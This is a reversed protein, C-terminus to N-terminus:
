DPPVLDRSNCAASVDFQFSVTSGKRDLILPEIKGYYNCLAGWAGSLRRTRIVYIQKLNIQVARDTIYAATDSPAEVATLFTEGELVAIAAESSVGLVGPPLWVFEGDRYDVALDWADKSGPSEIRVPRRLNFDYGSALNPDHQSLAFLRATDPNEQWRVAFPDGDCASLGLATVTLMLILTRFTM